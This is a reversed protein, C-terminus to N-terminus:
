FCVGGWLGLSATAMHSPLDDPLTKFGLNFSCAGVSHDIRGNQWQRHRRPGVPTIIHSMVPTRTSPSVSRTVACDSAQRRRPSCRVTQGRTVARLDVALPMHWAGRRHGRLLGVRPVLVRFARLSSALNRWARPTSNEGCTPRCVWLSQTHRVNAKSQLTRSGPGSNSSHCKAGVHACRSPSPGHCWVRLKCGHCPLSDPPCLLPASIVFFFAAPPRPSSIVAPWAGVSACHRFLVHFTSKGGIAATASPQAATRCIHERGFSATEPSYPSARGIGVAIWFITPAM